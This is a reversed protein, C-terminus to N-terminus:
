NWIDNHSTCTIWARLIGTLTSTETYLDPTGTHFNCYTICCDQLSQHHLMKVIWNFYYKRNPYSIIRASLYNMVLFRLSSLFSFFWSFFILWIATYRRNRQSLFFCVLLSVILLYFIPLHCFFYVVSV